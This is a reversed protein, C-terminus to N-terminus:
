LNSFNPFTPFTDLAVDPFYQSHISTTTLVQLIPGYIYINAHSHVSRTMHWTATTCWLPSSSIKTAACVTMHGSSAVDVIGHLVREAGVVSPFKFFSVQGAVVCCRPCPGCHRYCCCSSHPFQTLPLGAPGLWWRGIGTTMTTASSSLSPALYTKKNSNRLKQQKYKHGCCSSM